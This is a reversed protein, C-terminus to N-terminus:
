KERIADLPWVNATSTLVYSLTGLSACASGSTYPAGARCRQYEIVWLKTLLFTAALGVNLPQYDSHPVFILFEANGTATKVVVRYARTGDCKHLLNSFVGCPDDYLWDATIKSITGQVVADAAKLASSVDSPPATPKFTYGAPVVPEPDKIANCASILIVNILLLFRIM